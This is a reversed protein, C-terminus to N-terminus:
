PYVTQFDEKRLKIRVEPPFFQNMFECFGAVKAAYCNNMKSYFNKKEFRGSIEIIRPFSHHGGAAQMSFQPENSEVFYADELSDLPFSKLFLRIKKIEKKSLKRQLYDIKQRGYDSTGRIFLSDKTFIYDNTGFELSINDNIQVMVKADPATSQAHMATEPLFFIVIHLIFTKFRVHM